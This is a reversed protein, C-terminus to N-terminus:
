LSLSSKIKYNKNRSSYHYNCNYHYFKYIHFLGASQFLGTERFRNKHKSFKHFHVVNHYFQMTETKKSSKGWWNEKLCKLLISTYHLGFDLYNLLPVAWVHYKVCCYYEMTVTDTHCLLKVQGSSGKKCFVDCVFDINQIKEGNSAVFFFVLSTLMSLIIDATKQHPIM